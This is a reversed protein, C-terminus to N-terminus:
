DILDEVVLGVERDEFVGGVGSSVGFKDKSEEVQQTQLEGESRTDYQEDDSEDDQRSCVLKRGCFGSLYRQRSISKSFDM